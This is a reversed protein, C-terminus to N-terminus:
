DWTEIVDFIKSYSEVDFDHVEGSLILYENNIVFAEEEAYPALWTDELESNGAEKFKIKKIMEM